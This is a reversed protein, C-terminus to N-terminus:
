KDALKEILSFLKRIRKSKEANQWVILASHDDPNCEVCEDHSTWTYDILMKCEAATYNSGRRNVLKMVDTFGRDDQEKQPLHEGDQIYARKTAQKSFGLDKLSIMLSATQENSM